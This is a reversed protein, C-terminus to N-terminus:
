LLSSSQIQIMAIGSSFPIFNSPWNCWLINYLHMRYQFTTEMEQLSYQPSSAFVHVEVGTSSGDLHRNVKDTGGIEAHKHSNTILKPFIFILTLFTTSWNNQDLFDPCPRDAEVWRLQFVRLSQELLLRCRRHQLM